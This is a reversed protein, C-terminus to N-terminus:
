SGLFRISTYTDYISTNFQGSNKWQVLSKRTQRYNQSKSILSVSTIKATELESNLRPSSNQEKPFSGNQVMLLILTMFHLLEQEILPLAITNCVSKLTVLRLTREIKKKIVLFIHAQYGCLYIAM